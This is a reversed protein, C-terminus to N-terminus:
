AHRAFMILRPSQHTFRNGEYDGFTHEVHLGAKAFMQHFDDLTYLRVSEIFEKGDSAFRISKKIRGDEIKKAINAKEDNDLVVDFVPIFKERVLLANFFDIIIYGHESLAAAFNSIVMQHEEDTEFYGFSTFLNLILDYTRPLPDRIDAIALNLQIGLEEGREKAEEILTPSLDRGHLNSYGRKSLSFLHRGAGCPIDIICRSRDDGTVKEILTILQEAEADNRNSYLRLYREDTFWEKYWDSRL